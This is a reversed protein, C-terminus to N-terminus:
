CFWIDICTYFGLTVASSITKYDCTFISVKNAWFLGCANCLTRPGGPGRRMMPTSKSSISCHTCRSLFVRYFYCFFVSMFNCKLICFYPLKLLFIYDMFTLMATVSMSFYEVIFLFRSSREFSVFNGTPYGRASFGRCYEM